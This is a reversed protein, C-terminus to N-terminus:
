SSVGQQRQQVIPWCVETRHQSVDDTDSDTILYHERIPGDVGIAREAVITGLAGYTRDIEAFRGYHMMVALDAAPVDLLQVRGTSAGADGRLIPVFAVVEGIEAEFFEQAYLAGAPGATECNGAAVTEYLEAYAAGLWADCDGFAVGERIALAPTSAVWRFEIASHSPSEQLLARLSAVTARTQELRYEMRELHAAIAANRAATDPAALVSRVDDLPMELDRFRKILQATPVQTAAYLRYGSSNDVDAPELLGVDHYHRLAKVSLHTMRSFEGITLLVKM